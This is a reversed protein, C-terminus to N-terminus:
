ASVATMSDVFKGFLGQIIRFDSAQLSEEREDSYYGIAHVVGSLADRQAETLEGDAVAETIRYTLDTTSM